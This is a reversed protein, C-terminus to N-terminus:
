ADVLFLKRFSHEVAQLVKFGLMVRFERPARILEPFGLHHFNRNTERFGGVFPTVVLGFDPFVEGAQNEGPFPAPNSSQNALRGEMRWPM